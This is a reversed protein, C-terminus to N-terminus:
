FCHGMVKELKTEGLHHCLSVTNGGPTAMTNHYHKPSCVVTIILCHGRLAVQTPSHVPLFSLTKQGGEGPGTGGRALLSSNM